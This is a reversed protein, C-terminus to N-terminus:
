DESFGGNIIVSKAAEVMYLMTERYLPGDEQFNQLNIIGWDGLYITGRGCKAPELPIINAVRKYRVTEKKIRVPNRM